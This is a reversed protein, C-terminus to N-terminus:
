IGEYLISAYGDIKGDFSLDNDGVPFGLSVVESKGDILGVLYAVVLGESNGVFILVLIGETFFFVNSGEFFGDEYGVNVCVLGFFPFPLLLFIELKLGLELGDFTGLKFGLIPGLKFGLELGDLTGLSTGLTIGFEVGDLIGLSTDLKFGLDLGGFRDLSIGLKMGLILSLRFGVELGDVMGLSTGLKIGLLSGEIVVNACEFFGDEYGVNICVLGFFSFPFVM